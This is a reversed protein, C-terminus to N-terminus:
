EFADVKYNLNINRRQKERCLKILKRQCETIKDKLMCPDIRKHEEILKEMFTKEEETININNIYYELVRKYPTKPVDYKKKIKSGIKTKEQLKMVPLFHNTYLRLYSYLEELINFEEETDYRYYGVFRRVISYNKEEVYCNDDKKYPRNRTFTIKNDECYSLLHSNIFESGNDSDIGLVKFPLSKIVKDIGKVVWVRAKNKLILTENWGTKVDTLNLSYFFEGKGISGDHSVLDAQLFGVQTNDWESFTKIPIQHKLLTGPKTKGRNKFRYKKKEKSLLRDITSASMSMIKKLQESSLYIKGQELLSMIFDEKSVVLRKGCACSSYEWVKILIPILEEDYIRKRGRKHKGDKTIDAKVKIKPRIYLTKGNTRLLTASYNRNLGSFRVFDDLIKSKEKKSAKQYETAFRKYINKREDMNLRLVKLNVLMEM